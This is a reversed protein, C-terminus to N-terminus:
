KAGKAGAKGEVGTAGPEAPNQEGAQLIVMYFAQDSKVEVTLPTDGFSLYKAPIAPGPPPPPPGSPNRQKIPYRVIVKHTGVVAGPKNNECMLSFHGRADTVARSVPLRSSGPEGVPIFEVQVGFLPQGDLNVIGYVDTLPVERACGGLAAMVLLGLFRWRRASQSAM